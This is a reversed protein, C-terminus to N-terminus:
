PFSVASETKVFSFLGWPLVVAVPASALAKERGETAKSPETHGAPTLRHGASSRMEGPFAWSATETEEGSIVAKM